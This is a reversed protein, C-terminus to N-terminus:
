RMMRNARNAALAGKVSNVPGPRLKKWLNQPNWSEPIVKSMDLNACKQRCYLISGGILLLMFLLVWVASKGYKMVYKIVLIALALTDLALWMFFCKMTRSDSARKKQVAKHMQGRAQDSRTYIKETNYDIRDLITGQDIVLAALDKFIINLDNVSSAIQAIHTSRHAAIEEMEDLDRDQAHAHGPGRSSAAGGASFAAAGGSELDQAAGAAAAQRKKVESLYQKQVERCKKSLQQLDAALSSSMNKRFEEDMIADGAGRARVQHISQECCRILTAISGSLVEVERDEACFATQAKQLRRQQAKQLQELQSKIDRIEERAKDAFDVWQPPLCARKDTGGGVESGPGMLAESGPVRSFYASHKSQLRQTLHLKRKQQFDTTLDRSIPRRPAGRRMAPGGHALRRRPARIPQAAGGAVAGLLGKGQAL